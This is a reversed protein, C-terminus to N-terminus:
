KLQKMKKKLKKSAANVVKLNKLTESVIVVDKENNDKKPRSKDTQPMFDRKPCEGQCKNNNKLLKANDILLKKVEDKTASKSDKVFAAIVENKDIIGNFSNQIGKCDDSTSPSEIDCLLLNDDGAKSTPYVTTNDPLLTAIALHSANLADKITNYSGDIVYASMKSEKNILYVQSWRHHGDIIYYKNDKKYLLLPSENIEIVNKGEYIETIKSRDSAKVYWGLSSGLSIEVQTPFLDSVKVDVKDLKGDKFVVTSPTYFDKLGKIFDVDNAKFKAVLEEVLKQTSQKFFTTFYSKEYPACSTLAILSLIFVLKM